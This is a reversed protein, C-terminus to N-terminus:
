PSQDEPCVYDDPLEREIKVLRHDVEGAGRDLDRPLRRLREYEAIVTVLRTKEDDMAGGGIFFPVGDLSSM